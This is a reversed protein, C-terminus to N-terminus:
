EDQDLASLDEPRDVESFERPDAEIAQWPWRDILSRGGEDGSLAHLSPFVRRDFLVPNGRRGDGVPAVISPLSERHAELLRRITEPNVRPMDGLLFAAAEVRGEVASLGAHVSSSQGSEWEPNEVFEVGEPTIARLVAQGHAGLVIVIPALGGEKAAQIVHAVLPRGEWQALQKPGGFREGSGAALIVAATRGLCVKV